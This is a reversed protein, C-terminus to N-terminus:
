PAARVLVRALDLKTGGPDALGKRALFGVLDGRRWRAAVRVAESELFRARKLADRHFEWILEFLPVGYALLVVVDAPDAIDEAANPDLLAARVLPDRALVPLIRSLERRLTRLKRRAKKGRKKVRQHEAVEPRKDLEADLREVLDLLAGVDEVAHADFGARVGAEALRHRHQVEGLNFWAATTINV